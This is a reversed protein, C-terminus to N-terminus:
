FDLCSQIIKKWEPTGLTEEDLEDADEPDPYRQEIKFLMCECYKKSKTEGLSAKASNICESIFDTRDKSSWSSISKLCDQAEKQWEPTELDDASLKNAREIDPFKKELKEQMCYCYFRASDRSMSQMATGICESIFTNRDSSAWGKRIDGAQQAFLNNYSLVSVIVLSATLIKKM